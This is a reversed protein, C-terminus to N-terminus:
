KQPAEIKLAETKSYAEGRIDIFTNFMEKLKSKYARALNNKQNLDEKLNYLQFIADNGLEINVSSNKVPGDYPPIMLWDGKRIATRSTAELILSERAKTSNGFLADELNESDTEGEEGGVLSALSALLDVQCVLADSVRPEIKGKWYTIFPVRTGAEFLSYKGGRLAGAPTHNGLKEVADDYYGDNLVPGNDSSFIILTNELVGENKLTKMFEGICWDAELIVDGRPGLGSKGEFRPHPTRPVHPQQMAYYLFFPKEKHTKVYDQAKELFHDAMDVDSWKAAVGGKMFGIRSIGNVISSNHGHHWKMTLLEPNNKGTPEGEFNSKYSVQIPDKQDLGVVYGDNIYVTPVRDQTAALIYSYDFGVENPGPSIRENWNVNGSGLGLHWKGVIATQYGQKKLMKPLTVQSTDIILPASGPLIQASKNRWPYVGTLLGYRSPTCTASTSHGDTFKIGNNALNDINPTQLETAGYASVDGYGLDDLYIVVINPHTVEKKSVKETKRSTSFNCSQLVGFMVLTILFYIRKTKM